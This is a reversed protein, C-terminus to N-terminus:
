KGNQEEDMSEGETEELPTDEEIQQEDEIQELPGDEFQACCVTAALFSLLLLVKWIKM